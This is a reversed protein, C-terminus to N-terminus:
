WGAGLVHEVARTISIPGDAGFSAFAATPAGAADFVFLRPLGISLGRDFAAYTEFDGRLQTYNPRALRMFRAIEAEDRPVDINIGIINLRATPAQTGLRALHRAEAICPACWSAWFSVLTPAPLVHAGLTTAAGQADTLPADDLESLPPALPHPAAAAAERTFVAALGSALVVRRHM